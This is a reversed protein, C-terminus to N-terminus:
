ILMSKNCFYDGNPFGVHVSTCVTIYHMHGVVTDKIRNYTVFVYYEALHVEEVIYMTSM